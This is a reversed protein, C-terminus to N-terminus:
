GVRVLSLPYVKCRSPNESDYVVTVMAGAAPPKSTGLKVRRAAGSLLHFEYEVQYQGHGDNDKKSGVVRAEAARGEALLAYEGLLPLALLGSMLILGAPVLFAVLRPPGSPEYWLVWSTRPDEPLYRVTITEGSVGPGFRRVSARGVYTARGVRYEYRLLRRQNDDGGRRSQTVLAETRVGEREIRQRLGRAREGATWLLAGAVPASLVLTLVVGLLIRGGASLRVARPTYRSLPEVRIPKPKKM